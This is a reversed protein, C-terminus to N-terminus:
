ADKLFRSIKLNIRYLRILSQPIHRSTILKRKVVLERIYSDSASDRLSKKDLLRKDKNKLWNTNRYAITCDRCKHTLGNKNCSDKNFETFVKTRLCSSCVTIYNFILGERNISSKLVGSYDGGCDRLMQNIVMKRVIAEKNKCSYAKRNTHYDAKQRKIKLLTQWKEKSNLPTLAHKNKRYESRCQKCHSAYRNVGESRRDFLNVPKLKLCKTCTKESM